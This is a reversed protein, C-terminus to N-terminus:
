NAHDMGDMMGDEDPLSKDEEECLLDYAALEWNLNKLGGKWYFDLGTGPIMNSTMNYNFLSKLPILLSPHRETSEMTLSSNSQQPCPPVCITPVFNCDKGDDDGEATKSDRVLRRTLEDFDSNNTDPVL